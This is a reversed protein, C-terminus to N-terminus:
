GPLQVFRRLAATVEASAEEPPFHGVPLAVTQAQPLLVQWRALAPGLYPDRTGWLLLTPKAALLPLRAAQAAYWDSAGVLWQGLRLPGLRQEPTAFPALYHQHIAPTLQIKDSFAQKLLVRASFNLRLYLFRGLWSRLLRDIRRAGADPATAWLWTNLVVLRRVRGPHQGAWALAIPGGFDHAVLTVSVLQLHDLLRGLNEAHGAPHYDWDAPKNSLGFGLHDLAVCRYYRSLERLQRRFLFSWTPTGHVFVLVEGAGEDVYHLRGQPTPLYHSQFPYEAPDLWAPPAASLAAPHQM